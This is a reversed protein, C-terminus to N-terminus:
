LSRSSIAKGRNEKNFMKKLNSMVRQAPEYEAFSEKNCNNMFEDVFTAGAKYGANVATSAVLGGFKATVEAAPTVIDNALIKASSYGVTSATNMIKKAKIGMAKTSTARNLMLTQEENLGVALISIKTFTFMGPAIPKLSVHVDRINATNFIDKIVEKAKDKNDVTIEFSGKLIESDEAFVEFPKTMAEDAFINELLGDIKRNYLLAEVIRASRDELQELDYKLLSVNENDLVEFFSTGELQNETLPVFINTAIEAITNIDSIMIRQM